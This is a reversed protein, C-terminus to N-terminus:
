VTNQTFIFLISSSWFAHGPLLTIDSHNTFNAFDAQIPLHGEVCSAPCETAKSLTWMEKRKSGEANKHMTETILIITM